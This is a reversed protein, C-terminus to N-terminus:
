PIAEVTVTPEYPDTDLTFLYSGESPITIEIDKSGGGLLLSHPVGISLVTDGDNAGLNVANWSPSALKFKKAGAAVDLTLTYIGDGQYAMKNDDTATWDNDFVNGRVYIDAGKVTMVPAAPNRADLEFRYNGTEPVTLHQNGGGSAFDKPEWLVIPGQAASWETNWTSNAVKFSYFEFDGNNAALNLVAEYVSNGGHVLDNSEDVTDWAPSTVDGRVYLQTGAYVDTNVVTITPTAANLANLEFRYEGATTINLKLDASGDMLKPAGVTVTQAAGSTAGKDVVAGTWNASAVKFNYNGVALDFRASYIGDKEYVLENAAPAPNAWDGNITGRIFIKEDGYPVPVQYGATATASLGVGQSDGQKKVFVATTYAPVTFTGGDEGETFSSLRVTADASEADAQIDHLEFGASTLVTQSQETATGNIVVVIADVAGDLDARPAEETGVGDDISMVILGLKQTKGGDHFGVRDLVEAETELSFLKSSSSISLFENFVASAKEINEALPKANEDAFLSKVHDESVDLEPALGVAWNNSQKTFDVRNFWDGANYSNSSMSKSRLLDSGMHVFPVGQSLLVISQTLSNIRVRDSLTTDAPLAEPYHMWDWLTENDHKEVYNIAEQPDLGYAGVASAKIMRGSKALLLMNKLNGALGARIANQEAYDGNFLNLRQLPNRIRDNFTGIGTGALAAQTARNDEGVRVDSTGGAPTWAEAYFYTDPDVEQVAELSDVLVSKPMFGSQDFRFGDVKYNQAWGVLSDQVFKAMMKRETATDPGAGTGEEPVGTAPNARYYYGPVIKDLVSNAAVDTASVTHPYVVDMVVRLGMNHLAMNMARMEKIRNVGEPNSAYSGEPANFHQPDYGWNFGDVEAFKAILERQKLSDVPYSELVDRLTSTNPARDESDDNCISISTKDTVTNCLQFVFSDLNIQQSANEKISSSDNTPLFHIHTLGAEVLSKLHRVPVSGEETDPDFPEETFALYKGRNIPATSEDLISFDRVHTEYISMSEPSVVTPVVHEDWGTPKTSEDNLDVFLSHRSGESLSVSYPDTVELRRVRKEFPNYATVRYRYYKGNLRAKDATVSWVGSEDDPTMQITEVPLLPEGIARDFVRLEVNKANPAWVAATLSDGEYSLGLTKTVAAEGYLSDLALAFQVRTGKGREVTVEVPNEDEDVVPDGNEDLVAETELYRGVVLLEDKLLSKALEIASESAPLDYAFYSELHPALAIEEDSMPRPASTVAVLEGNSVDGNEAAGIGANTSRYLEIGNENDDGSFYERDWLITDADLMHAEFGSIALLPKILSCNDNVCIPTTSVQSNRMNATNVIVWMMRDYIGGDRKIDIQLNETQATGQPTKVIFNGCVGDETVPLLFYAGYVPDHMLKPDTDNDKSAIGPGNPWTTPIVWSNNNRDVVPTDWGGCDQWMHLNYGAFAALKDAAPLDVNVFIMVENPGPTRLPLPKTPVECSNGVRIQGEPCPPPVYDARREGCTGDDQLVLPDQCSVLEPKKNDTGAGGGCSVLGAISCVLAILGLKKRYDFM